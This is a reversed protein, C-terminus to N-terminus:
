SPEEVSAAGDACLMPAACPPRRWTPRMVRRTDQLLAPALCVFGALAPLYLTSARWLLNYYPVYGAPVLASMMTLSVIEMVGAGGPSPAFFEFLILVLQAELIHRFDSAGIGLFRLCLYAIVARSVPFPLSLLCTCAFAGPGRRLFRSVDARYTDILDVLRGALPGMRDAAPGEGTRDPPWWDSLAHGRGRLRWFARSLNGLAARLPGPWMAVVAMASGIGVFSWVVTLFVPWAGATNAVLLAYLAVGILAALTSMCSLLMITMSTGVSAGARSLVYIQGPGGWSQTPTLTSIAVNAWEAKICSWLSIRPELVRTVVWTRAGCTLTEIPLCLLILVLYSWHLDNGTPTAAGAEVRSFQYWFVGGTLLVFGVAGLALKGRRFPNAEGSLRSQTPRTETNM